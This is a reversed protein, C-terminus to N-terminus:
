YQPIYSKTVTTGVPEAVYLDAIHRQIKTADMIDLGMGDCDGRLAILGDADDVLEAIVRQIKTADMITIAGDGDADGLLFTVEVPADILVFPIEHAVAYEHAYSDTYCYIVLNSCDTFATDAIEIVSEPIFLKELSTCHYFAMNGISTCVSPLRLVSLASCDAFCYASVADVSTNQLDVSTLAVCGYFCGVGLTTLGSYLAIDTLASCGNFANSGIAELVDTTDVSTVAANDSFANEGVTTVYQKAFSWPLSVAVDAGVYEDIEWGYVNVKEYVWDGDIIVVKEATVADDTQAAVTGIVSSLILLVSFLLLVIRKM